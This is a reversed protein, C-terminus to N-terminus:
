NLFRKKVSKIIDSIMIRKDLEKYSYWSSTLLLVTGIVNLFLSNSNRTILLCLIGLFLQLSFMKYFAMEFDFGYKVKAIIFVQIFYLLYGMVFSIGIGNLGWYKYGIINFACIYINAMLESWFFLKSAGKALLIFAVSWSAAKFFIGFMAWHMMNSMGIFAHSYIVIVVWKIFVLFFLVIPALILVAIEAHQNITQKCLTNSHSVASLRPYYDTAMAAFIMGVYTNIISFGSNYLGVQEIGGTRSIFLRVAYSVLLSILGSLSIMFGMMLMSKGEHITQQLTVKVTHINIKQAFYWSLILAIVSSIIMGPVIADIKYFYYLPLTLVLGLASGAINAKALYQMKQMGQLIVMQGSSLQSILLTVSLLVFAITYDRNGFTLESLWPALVITVIIGLTGTLWVLKRFITMTIAIRDPDSSINASAIDKVASTGLGFNTVSGIIGITSNLLSAIGMGAPGLLVAIFKARILSIFINFVQVGGFLSTAKIIQRYSSQKESSEM